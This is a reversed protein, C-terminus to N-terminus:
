ASAELHALARVQLEFTAACRRHYDADRGNGRALAAMWRRKHHRAEARAQLLLLGRHTPRIGIM